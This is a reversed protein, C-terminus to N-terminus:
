LLTQLIYVLFSNLSIDRKFFTVFTKAEQQNSYQRKLANEKTQEPQSLVVLMGRLFRAWSLKMRQNATYSM